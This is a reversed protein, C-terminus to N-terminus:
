TLTQIHEDPIGPEWDATQDAKNVQENNNSAHDRLRKIM